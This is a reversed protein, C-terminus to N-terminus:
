NRDGNSPQNELERRERDAQLLDQLDRGYECGRREIIDYARRAIDEDGDERATATASDIGPRRRDSGERKAWRRIRWRTMVGWFRELQWLWGANTNLPARREHSVRAV